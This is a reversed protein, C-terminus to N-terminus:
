HPGDVNNDLDYDDEVIESNTEPDDQQPQNGLHEDFIAQESGGVEIEPLDNDVSLEDQTSIVATNEFDEASHNKADLKSDTKSAEEDLETKYTKGLVPIPEGNTQGSLLGGFTGAIAGLFGWQKPNQKSTVQSTSSAREGDQTQLLANTAIMSLVVKKAEVQSDLYQLIRERNRDSGEVFGALDEDTPEWKRNNM